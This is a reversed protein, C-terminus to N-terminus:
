EFGDKFLSDSVIRYALMLDQTSIAHRVASGVVIGNGDAFARLPRDFYDPNLITVRGNSGFDPDRAGNERLRLLVDDASAQATGQTGTSLVAGRHAYAEAGGIGTISVSIPEAAHVLYQGVARALQAYAFGSNNIPTFAGAGLLVGDVSVSSITSIPAVIGLVPLRQGPNITNPLLLAIQDTSWRETPELTLMSPDGPCDNGVEDLKCGRTFQAVAAPKSTTIITASSRLVDHTQGPMLTAISVGNSYVRTDAEDALIRIVDGSPRGPSPLMVFTSGWHSLPPLQEYALDCFDINDPVQACTHGGFVAVPKDAVVMSGTMDGVGLQGRLNYAEGTQLTVTFPVGAPHDAALVAPTISVKTNPANAVVALFSGGGLGDGWAMVRYQKGLQAIPLMVTSDLSSSRGHIPVVTVPASATLHITSNSIEGSVADSITHLSPPLEVVTPTGPTVSFPYNQVLAPSTIVGTAAVASSIMVSNVQEPPVSAPLVFWFDTGSDINSKPQGRVDSAAIIARGYDDLELSAIAGTFGLAGDVDDVRKGGSGFSNDVSGDSNAQALLAVTAQPNLLKAEGLALLKGNSRLVLDRARDHNDGGLDFAFSQFGDNDFAPDLSGGNDFQLLGLELDLVGNSAMMFDGLVAFRGDPRVVIAEYHQAFASAVPLAPTILGAGGAFETDFSGNATLRAVFPRETLTDAICNGIVLIQNDPTIAADTARCRENSNLFSRITQCGDGDFTPDLGGAAAIRCILAPFAGVEGEVSQLGGFVLPKGDSQIIAGDLSLSELQPILAAPLTTRRHGDANPGFGTDALGSALMRAIYIASRDNPDDGFMWIRGSGPFKAIARMQPTESELYGFLSRGVDGFGNDLTGDINGATAPGALLMCIMLKRLM